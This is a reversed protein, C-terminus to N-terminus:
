RSGGEITLAINILEATALTTAALASLEPELTARLVEPAVDILPSGDPWTANELLGLTAETFVRSAPGLTSSAKLPDTDDNHM